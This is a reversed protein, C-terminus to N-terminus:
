SPAHVTRSWEGPFYLGREQVWGNFDAQTIKNPQNLVPHDPALFRVEADEETVRDRSLTLPFPAFDETKLGRSTNTSCSWPGATKHMVYCPPGTSQRASM